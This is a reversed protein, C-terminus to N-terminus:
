HKVKVSMPGCIQTPLKREEGIGARFTLMVFFFQRKFNGLLMRGEM